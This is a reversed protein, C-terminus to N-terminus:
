TNDYDASRPAAARKLRDNIAEGLGRDPIPAVAIVPVGTADIEHLIQKFWLEFSQHVVIFLLEDHAMPQSIPAQLELLEPVRLYRGYTIEGSEPEM